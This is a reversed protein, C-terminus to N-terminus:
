SMFLPADSKITASHDLADCADEGSLITAVAILTLFDGYVLHQPSM